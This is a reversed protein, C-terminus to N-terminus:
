SCISIDLPKMLSAFNDTAAKLSCAFGAYGLWHAQNSWATREGTEGGESLESASMGLIDCLQQVGHTETDSAGQGVWLFSAAPSLLLFADNSKLNSAVADVQIHASM